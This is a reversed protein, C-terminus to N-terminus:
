SPNGLLRGLWQNVLGSLQRKRQWRQFASEYADGQTHLLNWGEVALPIGLCLLAILTAFSLLGQLLGVPIILRALLFIGIVIADRGLRRYFSARRYQEFAQRQSEVNQSQLWTQEAQVLVGDPIGLDHAIELLQARSFEGNYAQQDIAVSLIQHVDDQTYVREQITETQRM